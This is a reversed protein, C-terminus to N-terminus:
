NLARGLITVIQQRVGELTSTYIDIRNLLAATAALDLEDRLWISFDNSELKLRLRAEIFHYHISRLGVQEMAELFQPLNGARFATPTVITDSACFYFVQRAEREGALPNQRLYQEVIGEFKQRLSAISTFERVDISALQEALGVENCDVYAWHAFDNSFGEQIFHHEQLTRFTHQFISEEPCSQLAKLLENLNAARERGIRLLHSASNFHFPTQAERVANNHLTPATM